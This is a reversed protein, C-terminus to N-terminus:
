GLALWGAAEARFREGSWGGVGDPIRGLLPTGTVSPLDELNCRAALGPTEPWAGIVVGVLDLERHRLAEATLACSNLTGLGAAAVVLYGVKVGQERLAVGLDALTGGEAGLRVLLGGAGEVLVLDVDPRGALGAIVEAQEAVPPLTVGARRAATDPALPDPLRVLEHTEMEGALRRVDDVDGPQGALLGTQVPKVVIVRLGQARLGVVLAAVTVTKGVGTGTGTVMLVPASPDAM